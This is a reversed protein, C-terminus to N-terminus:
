PTLRPAIASQATGVQSASPSPTSAAASATGKDKGEAVGGKAEEGEQDIPWDEEVDGDMVVAEEEDGMEMEEILPVVVGRVRYCVIIVVDGM